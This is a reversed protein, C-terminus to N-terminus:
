ACCSADPTGGGAGEWTAAHSVDVLFFGVQMIGPVDLLCDLSSLLPDAAPLNGIGVLGAGAGAGAGAVARVGPWGALHMGWDHHPDCSGQHELRLPPTPPLGAGGPVAGAAAMAATATATSPSAPSGEGSPLVQHPGPPPPLTLPSPAQLLLGGETDMELRRLFAPFDQLAAHPM